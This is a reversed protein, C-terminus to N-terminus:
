SACSKLSMACRSPEQPNIELGAAMFLEGNIFCTDAGLLYHKLHFSTLTAGTRGHRWYVVGGIGHLLTDEDAIWVYM